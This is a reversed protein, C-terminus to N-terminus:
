DNLMARAEEAQRQIDPDAEEPPAPHRLNRHAIFTLLDHRSHIQKELVRYWVGVMEAVDLLLM